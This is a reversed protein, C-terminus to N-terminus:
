EFELETLRFVVSGEQWENPVSEAPLFKDQPMQWIYNPKLPKNFESRFSNTSVPLFDEEAIISGGSDKFYVTIKIKSLTKDGNNRIKFKVGPTKGDWSEFYGAAFDYIEINRAYAIKEHLAIEENLDNRTGNDSRLTTGDLGSVGLDSKLTNAAEDLAISMAGTTIITGIIAILCILCGAAPFGLGSRRGFISIFIGIFGLLFGLLSLPLGLCGVFPIWCSICAIIGLVLSAIGLASIDKKEPIIVNVIQKHTHNETEKTTKHIVVSETNNTEQQRRICSAVSEQKEGLNTTSPKTLSSIEAVEFSQKCKPCKAQKGKYYDPAKFQAGCHLCRTIM